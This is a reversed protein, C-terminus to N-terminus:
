QELLYNQVLQQYTKRMKLYYTNETKAIIVILYKLHFVM